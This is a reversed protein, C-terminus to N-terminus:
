RARATRRGEGHLNRESVDDSRHRNKVADGLILGRRRVVEPAMGEVEMDMGEVEVHNM